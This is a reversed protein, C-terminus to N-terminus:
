KGSVKSKIVVSVFESVFISHFLRKMQYRFLLLYIKVSFLLSITACEDASLTSFEVESNKM